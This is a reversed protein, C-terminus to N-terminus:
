NNIEKPLKKIKNWLEVDDRKINWGYYKDSEKFAYTYIMLGDIKEEMALKVQIDIDKVSPKKYQRDNSKKDVMEFVGLVVWIKKNLVNDSLDKKVKRLWGSVITNKEYTNDKKRRLYPDVAIIDFYQLYEKWSDPSDLVVYLPTDPSIKRIQTTLLKIKNLPMKKGDPEDVVYWAYVAPHNKLDSIKQYIDKSYALFSDETQVHERRFWLAVLAKMGAKHVQDLFTKNLAGITITYGCSKLESLVNEFNGSAGPGYIGLPIAFVTNCLFILAILQFAIIKFINM